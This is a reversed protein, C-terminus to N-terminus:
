SPYKREECRPLPPFDFGITCCVWHTTLPQACHKKGLPPPPPHQAVPMLSLWMTCRQPLAIYDLLMGRVKEDCYPVYNFGCISLPPSADCNEATFDPAAYGLCEAVCSSPAM